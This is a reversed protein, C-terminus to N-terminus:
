ALEVDVVNPEIPRLRLNSCPPSSIVTGGTYDGYWDQCWEAVNGHMDHLSWANPRFCVGSLPGVDGESSGVLFSVM